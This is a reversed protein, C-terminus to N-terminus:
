GRRERDRAAAAGRRLPMFPWPNHANDPVARVLLDVELHSVVLVRVALAGRMASVGLTGIMARSDGGLLKPAVFFFLRDVVRARLAAAALGAGGEILVASVGRAALRTFLRRLSLVGDRGPVTLVSVGRRRLATLKRGTRVTTVVLTGPAAASSLVRATLPIRLRGDVVIRLPNRGGRRRCTLAPDDAIVTGAGVMVADYQDRLRHVIRRAPAGTIWRSAGTRTAIRGDLTSALKLAVLPRGRCAVSTFGAILEACAVAEVGHEVRVGRRRLRLAGGGRVAPNPDRVGFVVRRVGSALIAETCPPTRGHHNCPELSV